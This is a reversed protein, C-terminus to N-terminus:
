SVESIIRDLMQEAQALYRAGFLNLHNLVHYCNYLTRRVEYGSALPWEERYAAYFAESFDGFLETMALDTERDGFYVAPDFIVPEGAPTAGMNGSWLDGHVLSPECVHNSFLSELGALVREGKVSLKAYRNRAALELQFGLRQERFFDVWRSSYTNKQPTSGITNDRHWGYRPQTVRHLAALCRGLEEQVKASPNKIEIYELALFSMGHVAGWCIPKPVRVVGTARLALLGEAEAAFMEQASPHGHKVFYTTTDTELAVTGNISGGAVPRARVLGLSQETAKGIDRLVATWHEM